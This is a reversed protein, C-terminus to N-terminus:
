SPRSSSSGSMQMGGHAISAMTTAHEGHTTWWTMHALTPAGDMGLVVIGDWHLGPVLIPPGNHPLSIGKRRCALRRAKASRVACWDSGAQSEPKKLSV